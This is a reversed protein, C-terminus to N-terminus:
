VVAAFLKHHLFVVKYHPNAEKIIQYLIAPDELSHYTCIALKPAFRKLTERAGMLMYREFGEIDSKIFDVRQLNHEKVFTDVTTIEAQESRGESKLLSNGGSNNTDISISLTEKKDGLGKLIPIVRGENLDATKQLWEYTEKTPEFAYATAGKSAAYASFDGIWAGADIVVDGKHVTVDFKGDKYGYPGETMMRDIGEVFDKEYNDNHYFSVLFTDEFMNCLSRFLTKDTTVDPLKAGKFDFYSTGNEKVLCKKLRKQTTYNFYHISLNQIAEYVFLLSTEIWGWHKIKRNFKADDWSQMKGM